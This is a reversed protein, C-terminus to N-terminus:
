NLLTLKTAATTRLGNVKSCLLKLNLDVMKIPRSINRIRFSEETPRNSPISNVSGKSRGRSLGTSENDCHFVLIQIEFCYVINIAFNQWIVYRINVIAPRQRCQGTQPIENYHVENHSKFQSPFNPIYKM